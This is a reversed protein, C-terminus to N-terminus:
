KKLINARIRSLSTDTVCLYSAIHKLSVYKFLEPHTAFLAQYRDEATETITSLMRQKLEAFGNALIMRGFERFEPLAHFLANLEAYDIVWGNCEILAQINERSRIRSFFSAVEFVM